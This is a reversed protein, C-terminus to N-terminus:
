RAREVHQHLDAPHPQPTAATGGPSRDRVAGGILEKLVKPEIGDLIQGPQGLELAGAQEVAVQGRAERHGLGIVRGGQHGILDREIVRFLLRGDAKQGELRLVIIGTALFRRAPSGSGAAVADVGPGWALVQSQRPSAASVIARAIESGGALARFRRDTRSGPAPSLDRRPNSARPKQSRRLPRKGLKGGLAAPAPPVPLPHPTIKRGRSGDVPRVAAPPGIPEPLAAAVMAAFSVKSRSSRRNAAVAARLPKLKSTAGASTTQRSPGDPHPLVVSSRTAEPMSLGVPPRTRMLSRSTAPGCRKTGGSCRLTPSINWSKASKGCRVMM